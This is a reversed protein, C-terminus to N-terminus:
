ATQRIDAYRKVRDIDVDTIADSIRQWKSDDLLMRATLRHKPDYQLLELAIRKVPLCGMLTPMVRLPNWMSEGDHDNRGLTEKIIRYTPFNKSHFTMTAEMADVILVGLSWMDIACTYQATCAEKEEEEEEEEEEEADFLEPARYSETVLGSSMSKAAYRSLGMDAVKVTLTDATLLVNAPTLDRHIMNLGHMYCLADAIELSFRSIFTIPLLGSHDRGQYIVKFLTLPLYPMLTSIKGEHLFCDLTEVINPHGRLASLCSLERVTSDMMSGDKNNEHCKLAYCQDTARCKVHYVVGYTGEGVQTVIAYKDM